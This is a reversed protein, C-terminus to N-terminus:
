PLGQGQQARKALCLPCETNLEYVPILHCTMCYPAKVFEGRAVRQHFYTSEEYAWHPGKSSKGTIDQLIAIHCGYHGTPAIGSGPIQGCPELSVANFSKHGTHFYILCGSPNGCGTAMYAFVANSDVQDSKYSAHSSSALAGTPSHKPDDGKPFKFLARICEPCEPFGLPLLDYEGHTACLVKV